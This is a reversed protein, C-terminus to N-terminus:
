LSARGRDLSQQQSRTESGAPRGISIACALITIINPIINYLDGGLVSPPRLIALIMNCARQGQLRFVVEGRVRCSLQVEGQSCGKM